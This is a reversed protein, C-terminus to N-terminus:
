SQDFLLHDLAIGACPAADDFTCRHACINSIYLQALDEMIRAHRDTDTAHARAISVMTDFHPLFGPM